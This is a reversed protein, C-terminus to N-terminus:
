FDIDPGLMPWYGTWTHQAVDNSWFNVLSLITLKSMEKPMKWFIENDRYFSSSKPLVYNKPFYFDQVLYQGIFLCSKSWINVRFIYIFLHIFFYIYIYIHIYIYVTSDFSPGLNTKQTLAQDLTPDFKTELNKQRNKGLKIIIKQCNTLTDFFPIFLFHASKAKTRKINSFSFSFIHFVHVLFMLCAWFFLAKQTTTFM